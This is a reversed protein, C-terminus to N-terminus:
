SLLYDIAMVYRQYLNMEESSAPDSHVITIMDGSSKRVELLTKKYGLIEALKKNKYYYNSELYTDMAVETISGIKDDRSLDLRYYFKGYDNKKEVEILYTDGHTLPIQTPYSSQTFYDSGSNFNQLLKASRPTEGFWDVRSININYLNIDVIDVNLIQGNKSFGIKSSTGSIENYASDLTNSLEIITNDFSESRIDNGIQYVGKSNYLKKLKELFASKTKELILEWTSDKVQLFNNYLRIDIQYNVELCMKFYDYDGNSLLEDLYKKYDMQYDRGLKAIRDIKTFIKDVKIKVEKRM